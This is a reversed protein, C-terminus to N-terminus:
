APLTKNGSIVISADVTSVFVATVGANVYNNDFLMSSAGHANNVEICAGATFGTNLKVVNNKVVARINRFGDAQSILQLAAANALLPSLIRNNEILIDNSGYALMNGVVIENDKVTAGILKSFQIYSNEVRNGDITWGTLSADGSDIYIPANIFKNNRIEINLNADGSNVGAPNWFGYKHLTVDAIAGAEVIIMNDHYSCHRNQFFAGLGGNGINIIINDHAICNRSGEFDVGVDRFRAIYNDHVTVKDACATWIGASVNVSEPTTLFGTFTNGSVEGGVLGYVNPGPYGGALMNADGGWLQTAYQRVGTATNNKVCINNAYWAVVFDLAGISRCNEIVTNHGSPTHAGFVAENGVEFVKEGGETAIGKFITGTKTTKFIDVNNAAIVKGGAGLITQGDENVVIQSSIKYTADILVPRVGANNLAAQLEATDDAIGDGVAGYWLPSVTTSANRAITLINANLIEVSLRGVNITAEIADIRGDLTAIDDITAYLDDLAIRTESSANAVIAAMVPDQLEISSGIVDAIAANVQAILLNVQEEFQDGLLAYNEDIWPILSRIIYKNIYDIKKLMTDGDRLTFPTVNPVPKFPASYDPIPITM